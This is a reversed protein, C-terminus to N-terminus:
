AVGALLLYNRMREMALEPHRLVGAQDALV